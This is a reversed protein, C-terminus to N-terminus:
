IHPLKSSEEVLVPKEIFSSNNAIHKLDENRDEENKKYFQVREKTM